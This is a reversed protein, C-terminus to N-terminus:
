ISAMRFRNLVGHGGFCVESVCSSRERDPPAKLDFGFSFWALQITKCKEGELRMTIDASPDTVKSSLNTAVTREVDSFVSVLINARSDM